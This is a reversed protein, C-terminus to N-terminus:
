CVGAAKLVTTCKMQGQKNGGSKGSKQMTAPAGGTQQGGGAKQKGQPKVMAGDGGAQKKQKKQASKGGAGQDPAMQGSQGAGQGPKRKLVPQEAAQVQSVGAAGSLALPVPLALLALAAIGSLLYKRTM